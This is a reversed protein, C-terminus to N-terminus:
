LFIRSGEVRFGEQRLWAVVASSMKNVDVYQQGLRAEERMAQLVYLVGAWEVTDLVDNVVVRWEDMIAQERQFYMKVSSMGTGRGTVSGAFDSNKRESSQRLELPKYKESVTTRWSPLCSLCCLM